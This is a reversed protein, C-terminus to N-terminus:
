CGEKAPQLIQVRGDQLETVMVEACGPQSIVAVYLFHGNAAILSALLLGVGALVWFRTPFGRRGTFDVSQRM